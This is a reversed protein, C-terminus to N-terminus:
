KEKNLKKILENFENITAEFKVIVQSFKDQYKIDRWIFYALIGIPLPIKTFFDVVQDLNM